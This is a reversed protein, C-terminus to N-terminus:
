PDIGISTSPFVDQRGVRVPPRLAELIAAALGVPVAPDAADEILLAFM